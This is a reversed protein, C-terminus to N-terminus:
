GKVAGASLNKVLYKQIYTFLIFSPIIAIIGGAALTGYNINFEGLMYSLGVPITFRNPDNILMIAFLFEKWSAVFAFFGAAVIGPLLIPFLIKFIAKTRTCGDMMAAEELEPSVNSFFGMMLISNFSMEFTSDNIILCLPSNLLNLHKYIMFLPILLMQGGFFQTSLLILMAVKKGKFDFRSLAYGSLLSFVVVIVMVSTSVLLSNFFYKSFNMNDWMNVFNAFTGPHPWYQVPLKTISGEPKLATNLVWYFPTLTFFMLVTLPLYVCFLNIVKTQCGDKPM